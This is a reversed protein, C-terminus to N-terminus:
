KGFRELFGLPRSHAVKFAATSHIDGVHKRLAERAEEGQRQVAAKEAPTRAKEMAAMAADAAHRLHAPLEPAAGKRMEDTVIKRMAAM